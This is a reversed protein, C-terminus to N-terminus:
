AHRPKQLSALIIVPVVLAILLNSEEGEDGKLEIISYGVGFSLLRQKTTISSNAREFRIEAVTGWPEGHSINIGEAANM